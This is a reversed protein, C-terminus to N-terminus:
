CCGNAKKVNLAKTRQAKSARKARYPGDIFNYGIFARLM